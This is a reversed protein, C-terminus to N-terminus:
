MKSARRGATPAATQPRSLAPATGSVAAPAVVPVAPVPAGTTSQRRPSPLKEQPPPPKATEKGVGAAAMAALRKRKVEAVDIYPEGRSMRVIENRQLARFDVVPVGAGIDKLAMWLPISAGRADAAPVEILGVAAAAAASDGKKSPRTFLAYGPPLAAVDVVLAGSPVGAAPDARERFLKRVVGGTRASLADLLQDMMTGSIDYVPGSEDGNRKAKVIIMPDSTCLRQGTKDFSTTAAAASSAPDDNRGAAVLEKLDRV